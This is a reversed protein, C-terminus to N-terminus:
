NGNEKVKKLFYMGVSATFCSTLYVGYKALNDAGTEWFFAVIFLGFTVITVGIAMWAGKISGESNIFQIKNKSRGM